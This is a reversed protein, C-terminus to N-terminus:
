SDLEILHLRQSDLWAVLNNATSVASVRGVFTNSEWARHTTNNTGLGVVVLRASFEGFEMRIKVHLGTARDRTWLTTPYEAYGETYGETYGYSGIRDFDFINLSHM